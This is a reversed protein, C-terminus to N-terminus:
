IEVAGDIYIGGLGTRPDLRSLMQEYRQMYINGNAQSIDAKLLDGAVGYVMCELADLDLEFVYSDDTDETIAIPYKFYYIKATGETNFVVNKGYVTSDVGKIVDVQYINSDIDTIDIEHEEEGEAFVIEMTTKAPIKKMRAVEFMVSNIVSNMKMALDEDETLDEADESYEEILAYVKQKMEELTM